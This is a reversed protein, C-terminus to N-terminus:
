GSMPMSRFIAISFFHIIKRSTQTNHRTAKPSFYRAANKQYLTVFISPTQGHTSLIDATAFGHRTQIGIQMLKGTPLDLIDISREGGTRDMSISLLKTGDPSWSDV